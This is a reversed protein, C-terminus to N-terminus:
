ASSPMRSKQIHSSNLRTSKRDRTDCGKNALAFGCSHRLMHPHVHGIGAREGIERCLYNFASRHLPRGREGMFLFHTPPAADRDVVVQEVAGTLAGDLISNSGSLTNRVRLYARVARVEDGDMPHSTSMSGKARRVFMRGADLDIDDLRVHVLESVRLGHRYAMLVLCYDRIGYRGKRAAALFM